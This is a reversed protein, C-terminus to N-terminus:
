QATKEKRSDLDQRGRAVAEKMEAENAVEEAIVEDILAEDLVTKVHLHDAAKRVKQELAPAFFQSLLLLRKAEKEERYSLSGPNLGAVKVVTAFTEKKLKDLLERQAFFAAFEQNQDSLQKELTALEKELQKIQEDSKVTYPLLQAGQGM